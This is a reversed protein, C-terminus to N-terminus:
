RGVPPKAAAEARTMRALLLASMIPGLALIPPAYHFAGTADRIWGVLWPGLFGALAAISNIV